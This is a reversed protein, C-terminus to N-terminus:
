DHIYYTPSGKYEREEQRPQRAHDSPYVNAASEEDHHQHTLRAWLHLEQCSPLPGYPNGDKKDSPKTLWILSWALLIAWIAVAVSASLMLNGMYNSKTPHEYIWAWQWNIAEAGTLANQLAAAALTGAPGNMITHIVPYLSGLALLIWVFAWHNKHGTDHLRRSTLTLMPIATAAVFCLAFGSPLNWALLLMAIHWTLMFYWFEPRAARGSFRFYGAMAAYNNQFYDRFPKM